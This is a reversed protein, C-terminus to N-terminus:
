EKVMEIRLRLLPYCRCRKSKQHEEQFDVYSFDVILVSCELVHHPYSWPRVITPSVFYPATFPDDLLPLSRSDTRNFSLFISPHVTGKWGTTLRVGTM